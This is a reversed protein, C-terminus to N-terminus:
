RSYRKFGMKNMSRNQRRQRMTNHKSVNSHSKNKMKNWKIADKSLLSNNRNNHRSNNNRMRRTGMIWPNNHHNNQEHDLIALNIEFKHCIDRAQIFRPSLYRINCIELWQLNCKYEHCYKDDYIYFYPIDDPKSPTDIINCYSILFWNRYKWNLIILILTLVIVKPILLIFLLHITLIYKDIICLIYKKCTRLKNHDLEKFYEIYKLKLRYFHIGKYHCIIDMVVGFILWGFLQYIFYNHNYVMKDIFLCSKISLNNTGFLVFGMIYFTFFPVFCDCGYVYPIFYVTFFRFLKLDYQQYYDKFCYEGWIKALSIKFFLQIVIYCLIIGVIWDLSWVNICCM